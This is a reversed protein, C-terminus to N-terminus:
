RLNSNCVNVNSVVVGEDRQGEERRKSLLAGERRLGWSCCQENKEAEERRGERRRKEAEGSLCGDKKAGRRKQSTVVSLL